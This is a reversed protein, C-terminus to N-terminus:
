AEEDNLDEEIMFYLADMEQVSLMQNKIDNFKIKVINVSTDMDELIKVEEKFAPLNESKIKFEGNEGEIPEGYKRVLMGYADQIDQAIPELMHINRIIAFSVQANFRIGNSTQLTQLKRVVELINQNKM